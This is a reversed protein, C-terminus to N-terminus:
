FLFNLMILYKKWTSILTEIFMKMKSKWSQIIRIQKAFFSEDFRELNKLTSKIIFTNTQNSKKDLPM